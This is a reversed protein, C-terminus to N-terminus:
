DKVLEFSVKVDDTGLSAVLGTIDDIKGIKTYSNSTSFSKYFLVLTTSGYMMLDGSQISSPISANTPVRQPLQTYKENDNLEGMNLTLPLLAKFSKATPSDLLTATFTRKGVIIRIKSNTNTMNQEPITENNNFNSRKCSASCAIILFM